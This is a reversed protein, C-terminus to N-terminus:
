ARSRWITPKRKNHFVALVIVRGTGVRSFVSYRFEDVLRKRVDRYVAPALEPLASSQDFVAQAQEMFEVGLRASQQDHWDFAEDFEARALVRLVVPLTM